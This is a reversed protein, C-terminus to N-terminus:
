DALLSLSSHHYLTLKVKGAKSSLWGRVEITKGQLSELWHRDHEGSGIRIAAVNVVLGNNLVLQSNKGRAHVRAVRNRVIHFGREKGDLEDTELLWEGTQEWIGQRQARADKELRSNHDACLTNRGVAIALALGQEILASGIDTGDSTRIHALLRGHRDLRETGVTLSVSQKGALNQVATTAAEAWKRDLKHSANIELTNVGIIRVKRGDQLLVTDGDIVRDITASTTQQDQLCPRSGANM